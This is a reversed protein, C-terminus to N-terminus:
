YFLQQGNVQSRLLLWCLLSILFISERSQTNTHISHAALWNAETVWCCVAAKQHRAVYLVKAASTFFYIKKMSFDLVREFFITKKVLVGVVWLFVDVESSVRFLLFVFFLIACWVFSYLNEDEFIFSSIIKSSFFGSRRVVIERQQQTSSSSSERSHTHRSDAATHTHTYCAKFGFRGAIHKLTYYILFWAKRSAAM